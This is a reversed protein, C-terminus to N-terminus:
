GRPKSKPRVPVDVEPVDIRVGGKRISQEAAVLTAVISLSERGSTLPSQLTRICTAFHELENRLAEQNTLRPISVDGLRYQLLAEEDREVAAEYVRIKEDNSMDDFLITARKGSLVTRRVKMPSLWSVNIHAFFDDEFAITLFAAADHKAQLHRGATASVATPRAGVVAQFISLDHVALDWLVSVDPQFIGLNARTSDFYVLDGLKGTKVLDRMAEVASTYVYTHDVMLIKDHEDALAVLNVADDISTALPKEVLVHLGASLAKSALSYHSGAPTAIVVADLKDDCIADELDARTVCQPYLARAQDRRASKSDVVCILEFSDSQNLNRALHPGWYGFGVVGVRVPRTQITM